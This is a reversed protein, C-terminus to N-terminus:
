HLTYGTLRGSALRSWRGNIENGNHCLGEMFVVVVSIFPQRPWEYYDISLWRYNAKSPILLADSTALCYFHTFLLVEISDTNFLPKPRRAYM